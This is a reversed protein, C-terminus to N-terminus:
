APLSRWRWTQDQWPSLQWPPLGGDRCRLVKPSIDRSSPLGEANDPLSVLNARHCRSRSEPFPLAHCAIQQHLREKFVAAALRHGGKRQSGDILGDLSMTVVTRCLDQDTNRLFAKLMGDVSVTHLSLDTLSVTLMFLQQPFLHSLILLYEYSEYPERVSMIRRLLHFLPHHFDKLADGFTFPHFLSHTIHQLPQRM